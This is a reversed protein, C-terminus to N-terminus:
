QIEPHWLDIQLSPNMIWNQMQPQRLCNVELLSIFDTRKITRAGLMSMHQTDQQCDILPFGWSQLHCSLTALAIKSTDRELSFMSEGFFVRGLAVGYLGGILRGSRNWVEVSHAYGLQHLQTYAAQMEPTIWTENTHRRPAACTNIVAQFNQDFTIQYNTQRIRKRLSRHLKFENLFLVARPDPSWWLIPQGTEYWPFIGQQYANILRTPSLDGGLALLGNPESLAREPSPFPTDPKTEDLWVLTTM